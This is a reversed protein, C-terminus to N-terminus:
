GWLRIGMSADNLVLKANMNANKAEDFCKAIFRCYEENPKYRKLVGWWWDIKETWYGKRLFNRMGNNDTTDYLNYQWYIKDPENYVDWELIEPYDTVYKNIHKLIMDELNNQLEKSLNEAEEATIEGNTYKTYIYAMTGEKPNNLDGVLASTAGWGLEDDWWLTHGRLSMEHSKAYDIIDKRVNLIWNADDWKFYNGSGIINFLDNTIESDDAISNPYLPNTYINKSSDWEIATGFKFENNLLEINVDANDLM